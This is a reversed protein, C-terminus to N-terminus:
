SSSSAPSQVREHRARYRAVADRRVRHDHLAHGLSRGLHLAVLSGAVVAAAARPNEQARLWLSTERVHAYPARERLDRGPGHLSDGGPPSEVGRERMLAPLLRASAPEMLAPFLMAALAQLRGGGGVTLERVRHEAAYLIAEAALRGAYVPPPNTGPAGTYSRAHAKYPTDLASPKILTVQVQPADVALEQRLANIFGKVAHKSASYVGQVPIAADGLVSGVTILAGGGPRARLREVALRAGHVVGWYNTDFLRRQDELPTEEIRGYISVGANNVWTDFGGFATECAAAAAHLQTEDGVDAVAHDARAGTARLEQTLRRLAEGNRAILFVAAGRQAALRATTLGVGSTAGTIVIVQEALPKLIPRTM